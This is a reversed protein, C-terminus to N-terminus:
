ANLELLGEPLELSISRADPDVAVFFEDAAPIRVIEGAPTRVLMLLNATSDDFDELVGVAAGDAEVNFGILDTIYFGDQGDLDEDPLDAKKALIDKGAISTAPADHLTLLMSQPGRPRLSKVFFPVYLGDLELFLCPLAEFVEYDVFLSCNYEGHIGHPKVVSAVPELLTRDIM